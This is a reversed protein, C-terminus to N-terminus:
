LRLDVPYQYSEWIEAYVLVTFVWWYLAALRLKLVFVTQTRRRRKLHSQIGGWIRHFSTNEINQGSHPASHVWYYYYYQYYPHPHPPGPVPATCGGEGGWRSLSHSRTTVDHLRVAPPLKDFFPHRLAEALTIRESPEYDLMKGILDFLQRHEEDDSTM